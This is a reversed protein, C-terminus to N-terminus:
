KGRACRACKLIQQYLAEYEPTGDKLDRLKQVRYDQVLGCYNRGALDKECETKFKKCDELSKNKDVIEKAKDELTQNIKADFAFM